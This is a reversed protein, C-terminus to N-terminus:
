MGEVHWQGGAYVPNQPTLVINALKVICQITQGNLSVTKQVRRLAGDYPGNLTPLKKPQKEEWARPDNCYEKWTLDDSTDPFPPGHGFICTGHESYFHQDEKIESTVRWPLLPRSLDSLVRELMPIAKELIKTIVGRLATDRFHVNNIYPSKLEVAGRDSVVFDSPIWQFRESRTPSQPGTPPQARGGVPFGLLATRGYVLPYLSPHVLDLIQYNSGPHWDKQSQTVNELLAAADLM